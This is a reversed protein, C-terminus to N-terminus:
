TNGYIALDRRDGEFNVRFFNDQVFGTNISDVALHLSQPPLLFLPSFLPLARSCVACTIVFTREKVSLFAFLSSRGLLGLACM